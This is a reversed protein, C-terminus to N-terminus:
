LIEIDLQEIKHVNTIDIQYCYELLIYLFICEFVIPVAKICYIFFPIYLIM